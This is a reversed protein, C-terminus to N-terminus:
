ARPVIRPKMQLRQEERKGPALAVELDTPGLGRPEKAAGTQAWMTSPTVCLSIM